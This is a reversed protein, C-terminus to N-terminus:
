QRRRKFHLTCKTVEELFSAVQGDADRIIVELTNSRIPKFPIYYPFEFRDVQFKDRKVTCYRLLNQRRGGVLQEETFNTHIYVEKLIGGAEGKFQRTTCTFDLLAGVGYESFNIYDELIVHFHAPTNNPYYQRSQESDIHLYM